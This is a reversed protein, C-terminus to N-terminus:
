VEKISYNRHFLVRLADWGQPKVDFEVNPGDVKYTVDFTADGLEAM